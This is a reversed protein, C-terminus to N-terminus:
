RSDGAYFREAITAEGSSTADTGPRQVEKDASMLFTGNRLRDDVAAPTDNVAVAYARQLRQVENKLVYLQDKYNEITKWAFLLAIGGIGLGAFGVIYGSM